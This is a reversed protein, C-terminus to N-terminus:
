RRPTLAGSVGASALFAKRLRELGSTYLEHATQRSIGLRRGIEAFTLEEYHRSVIVARQRPTLVQEDNLLDLIRETSPADRVMEEIVGAEPAPMTRELEERGVEISTRRGERATPRREARSAACKLYAKFDRTAGRGPVLVKGVLHELAYQKLEEVEYVGVPRYRVKDVIEEKVLEVVQFNGPENLTDYVERAFAQTKRILFQWVPLIDGRAVVLAAVYRMQLYYPGGIRPEAVSLRRRGEERAVPLVKQEWVGM